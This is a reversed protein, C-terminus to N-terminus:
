KHKGITYNVAMSDFIEKSNLVKVEVKQTEGSLVLEAEVDENLYLKISCDDM